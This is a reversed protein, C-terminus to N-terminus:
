IMSIPSIPDVFQRQFQLEARVSNRPKFEAQLEFFYIYILLLESLKKNAIEKSTMHFKVSKTSGYINRLTAKWAANTLWYNIEENRDSIIIYFKSM